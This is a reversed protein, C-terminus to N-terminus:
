ALYFITRKKLKYMKVLGVRPGSYVKSIADKSWGTDAISKKRFELNENLKGVNVVFLDLNEGVVLCFDGNSCFSASKGKLADNRFWQLEKLCIDPLGQNNKTTPEIKKTVSSLYVNKNDNLLLAIMHDQSQSFASSKVLANTEFTALTVLDFLECSTMSESLLLTCFLLFNKTIFIYTIGM